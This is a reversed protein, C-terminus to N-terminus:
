DGGYLDNIGNHLNNLSKIRLIMNGEDDFAIGYCRHYEGTVMDEVFLNKNTNTKTKIENILQESMFIPKRKM